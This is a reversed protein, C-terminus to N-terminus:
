ICQKSRRSISSYSARFSRKIRSRKWAESMWLMAANSIAEISPLDLGLLHRKLNEAKGSTLLSAALLNDVFDKIVNERVEISFSDGNVLMGAVFKRKQEQSLVNRAANIFEEKMQDPEVQFTSSVLIDQVQHQNVEIGMQSM